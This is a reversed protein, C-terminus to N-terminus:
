DACVGPWGFKGARGCLPPDKRPAGLCLNSDTVAKSASETRPEGLVRSGLALTVRVTFTKSARSAQGQRRCIRVDAGLAVICLFVAQGAQGIAKSKPM